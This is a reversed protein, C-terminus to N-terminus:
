KSGFRDRRKIFARNTEPAYGLEAVSVKEHQKAFRDKAREAATMADRAKGAATLEESDKAMHGRQRLIGLATARADKVGKQAKLQATLRDVLQGRGTFKQTGVVAGKKGPAARFYETCPERVGPQVEGPGLM